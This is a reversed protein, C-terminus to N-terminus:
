TNRKETKLFNRKKRKSPTGEQIDQLTRLSNINAEMDKKENYGRKM